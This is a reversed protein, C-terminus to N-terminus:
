NEPLMVNLTTPIESTFNIEENEVSHNDWDTLSIALTMISILACVLFAAFFTRKQYCLNPPPHYIIPHYANEHYYRSRQEDSALLLFMVQAIQAYFM